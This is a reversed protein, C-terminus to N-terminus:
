GHTATREPDYFPNKICDEDWGREDHNFVDAEGDDFGREWGLYAGYQAIRPALVDV